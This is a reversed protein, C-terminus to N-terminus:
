GKSNKRTNTFGIRARAKGGEPGYVAPHHLARSLRELRENELQEPDFGLEALEERVENERAIGSRLDALVTQLSHVDFAAGDIGPEGAFEADLAPDGDFHVREPAARLLRGAQLFADARKSAEARLADLRKGLVTREIMLSGLKESDNVTPARFLLPGAAGRRTPSGVRRSGINGRGTKERGRPQVSRSFLGM